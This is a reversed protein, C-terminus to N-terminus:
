LKVVDNRKVKAKYLAEDVRIFASQEKDYDLMQTVGISITINPINNDKYEEILKRLEEAKHYAINVDTRPLLIMFEEGGWRAFVDNTRLNSSILKTLSVLVKDGIEHGYTDNIMKFHDIDLMLLSINDGHRKKNEIEKELVKAFMQRNYIGTLHDNYAMTELLKNENHIATIDQRISTYAIKQNNEDYVPSVVSDVWYLINDKARNKLIGTWVQNNKLEKWMKKYVKADIDPGRIINHSQGILEEKSYKSIKCFAESVAIIKGNLDTSSSIIYTDMLTLSEELKKHLIEIKKRQIKDKDIDRLIALVRSTNDDSIDSLVIETWFTEQNAKKHLWEFRNGGKKICIDIMNKAEISSERGDPQFKPSLELPTAKLLQSKDQYAFMDVAAKNCDVFAFDEIILIGDISKEFITKYM